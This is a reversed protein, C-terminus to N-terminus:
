PNEETGITVTPTPATIKTVRVNRYYINTAQGADADNTLVIRDFSGSYNDLVLVYSQWDNPTYGYHDNIGWSQTGYIRYFRSESIDNNDDLGAGNIEAQTGTSKFDFCIAQTGDGIVNLPKMVAKWNNGWMRLTTNDIVEYQTPQMDQGSGGYSTVGDVTFDVFLDFTTEPNSQTDASPNGYYIYVTETSSGSIVPVNVWAVASVGSVYSEIWYPILTQASNDTFRIDSFDTKMDSDYNINVRVQYNTLTNTNLSNDVTVPKRKTWDQAIWVTSTAPTSYQGETYIGTTCAVKIRYRASNEWAYSLECKASEGSQINHETPQSVGNIYVTDVTLSSTGTNRIIIEVNDTHYFRVNEIILFGGAQNLQTNTINQIWAYSAIAAAVVIVIILLTALIPSIAKRSNRIKFSKKSNEQSLELM